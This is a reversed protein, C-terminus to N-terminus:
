HQLLLNGPSSRRGRPASTPQLSRGPEHGTSGTPPLEVVASVIFFALTYDAVDTNSSGSRRVAYMWSPGDAMESTVPEMQCDYRCASSRTGGPSCLTLSIRTSRLQLSAQSMTKVSPPTASRASLDSQGKSFGTRVSDDHDNRSSSQCYM